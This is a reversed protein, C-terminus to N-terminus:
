TGPELNCTEPDQIGPDPKDDSGGELSSILKYLMKRVEVLIGWLTRARETDVLKRRQFLELYTFTEALSGRAYYLHALYQKLTALEHGESINAPVSASSAEWQGALRYKKALPGNDILDMVLDAADMSKQWVILDRYSRIEDPEPM